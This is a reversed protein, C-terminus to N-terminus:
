DRAIEDDVLQFLEGLHSQDINEEKLSTGKNLCNSCDFREGRLTSEDSRENIM